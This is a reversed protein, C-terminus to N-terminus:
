WCGRGVVESDGAGEGWLRQTVLVGEGCHVSGGAGGGWLRQAVLM